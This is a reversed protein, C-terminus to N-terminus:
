ATDTSMGPRNSDFHPVFHNDPCLLRTRKEVSPNSLPALVPESSMNIRGFCPSKTTNSDSESKVNNGQSMDRSAKFSHGLISREVDSTQSSLTALHSSSASAAAAVAAAAALSMATSTWNRAARQITSSLSCQSPSSM